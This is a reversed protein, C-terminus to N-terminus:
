AQCASRCSLRRLYDGETYAPLSGFVAVSLAKLLEKAPLPKAASM